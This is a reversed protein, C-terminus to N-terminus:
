LSFPTTEKADTKVPFALVKAAPPPVPNAHPGPQTLQTLVQNLREYTEWMMRSVAVCSGLPTASRERTRDIRWQLSRLRHQVDAPAAAILENIIQERSREFEQPNHSALSSWHEFDLKETLLSKNVASV